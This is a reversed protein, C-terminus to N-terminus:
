GLGVGRVGAPPHGVRRDLDVAPDAKGPLVIQVEKELAALLVRRHKAVCFPMAVADGGGAECFGGLRGRDLAARRMPPGPSSRPRRSRCRPRRGRPPPWARRPPPPRTRRPAPATESM